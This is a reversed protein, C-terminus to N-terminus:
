FCIQVTAIALALFVVTAGNSVSRRAGAMQGARHPCPTNQIDRECVGYANCICAFPYDEAIIGTTGLMMDMARFALDGVNGMGPILLGGEEAKTREAEDKASAQVGEQLLEGILAEGPLQDARMGSGGKLEDVPVDRVPFISHQGEQALKEVPLAFIDAHVPSTEGSQPGDTSSANHATVEGNKGDEDSVAVPVADAGASQNVDNMSSTKAMTGTTSTANPMKGSSDAHYKLEGSPKVEFMTNGGSHTKPRRSRSSETRIMSGSAPVAGSKVDVEAPSEPGLHAEEGHQPVSLCCRLFVLALAVLRCM